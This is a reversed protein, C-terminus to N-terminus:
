ESPINTRCCMRMCWSMSVVARRGEFQRATHLTAFILIFTDNDNTDLIACVIVCRRAWVLAALAATLPNPVCMLDCCTRVKACLSDWPWTFLDALVDFENFFSFGQSGM